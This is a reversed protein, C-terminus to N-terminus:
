GVEPVPSFIGRHPGTGEPLIDEGKRHYDQVGSYGALSAVKACNNGLIERIWNLLFFVYRVFLIIHYGEHATRGLFAWISAAAYHM